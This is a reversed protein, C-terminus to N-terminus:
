GRHRLPNGCGGCPDRSRQPDRATTSGAIHPERGHIWLDWHDDICPESCQEWRLVGGLDQRMIMIVYCILTSAVYEWLVNIIVRGCHVFGFCWLAQLQRAVGYATSRRLAFTATSVRQRSSDVTGRDSPSTPLVALM